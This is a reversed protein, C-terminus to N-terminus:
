QKVSIAVIVKKRFNDRGIRRGAPQDRLAFLFLLQTGADAANFCGAGIKKSLLIPEFTFDALPLLIATVEAAADRETNMDGCWSSLCCGHGDAWAVRRLAVAGQRAIVCRASPYLRLPVHGRDQDAHAIIHACLPPRHRVFAIDGLEQMLPAVSVALSFVFQEGEHKGVQPPERM